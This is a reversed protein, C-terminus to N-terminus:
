PSVPVPEYKEGLMSFILPIDREYVHLSHAIHTYSGVELNPYIPLLEQQMREMLSCFWPMDYVLGKVVDNSRMVITFHLRDERIFFQGHMTCVQDKNGFWQHEPRSFRVFAQRSDKDRRLSEYAWGWPSLYPDTWDASGFPHLTKRWILYGYASNVTGDPNAVERWFPAAKAFEDVSNEGRNYLAFETETYKAIKENRSVDLTVLPDKSPQHVIGVFNLTEFTGIGRPETRHIHNLTQDLVPNGTPGTLQARTKFMALVGLYLDKPTKAEMNIM